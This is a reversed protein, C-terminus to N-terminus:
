CLMHQKYHKNHVVWWGNDVFSTRYRFVIMQNGCVKVL